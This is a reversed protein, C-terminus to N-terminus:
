RPLKEEAVALSNLITPISSIPDDGKPWNLQIKIVAAGSTTAAYVEMYREGNLDRCNSWSRIVGIFGPNGYTEQGAFACGDLTWDLLTAEHTAWSLIQKAPAGNLGFSAAATTSAVVYMRPYIYDDNTLVTGTVFSTGTFRRSGSIFAQTTSRSFQWAAPAEISVAETSDTVRKLKLTPPPDSSRSPSRDTSNGPSPSNGFSPSRPTSDSAASQTGDFPWLWDAVTTVLAPSIVAAAVASVVSGLILAQWGTPSHGATAGPERQEETGRAPVSPRNLPRRLRPRAMM